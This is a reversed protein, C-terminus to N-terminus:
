TKDIKMVPLSVGFVSGKKLESEVLRISGGMGEVMLKSIYLGLGTGKSTDRTYLSSGAQQFKHFLLGQQERAIGEGSDTVRLEVFGERESPYLSVMVKGQKTFKIANGILNVLIQKLRDPDSWVSQALKPDNQWSLEVGAQQGSALFERLTGEVIDTLVVEALKYELKGMELRSVNLFDNVIEILRVSGSHIDSLMELVDKDNIRDAFHEQIMEANGRIATLPTRLEHSAISFFEDRSRSMATAETVDKIFVAVNDSREDMVVPTLHIMLYKSGWLIPQTLVRKHTKRTEAVLTQLDVIQGLKEQILSLTVNSKVGFMEGVVDNAVLVDDNADLVILARNISNIVAVLQAKEMKLQLWGNAIEEKALTLEHTRERVKAEVGAKEEKLQAELSRADELLNLMAVKSKEMDSQRERLEDQNQKSSQFLLQLEENKRNLEEQKTGLEREYDGSAKQYYGILVGEILFSALLQRTEIWDFAVELLGFLDALYLGLTAVFLVVLMIYTGTKDLLYFAVVPFIFYWYIGTNGGIGGTLYMLLLMLVVIITSIYAVVSIKRHIRYLSINIGIIAAMAVKTQGRLGNEVGFVLLVMMGILSFFIVVRKRKDVVKDM